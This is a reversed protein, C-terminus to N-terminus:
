MSPLSSFFPDSSKIKVSYKDLYAKFTGTIVKVVRQCNVPSEMGGGDHTSHM